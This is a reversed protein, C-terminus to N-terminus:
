HLDPSGGKLALPIGACVLYVHASKEAMIRNLYGAVDRFSRALGNEPVIGWGVENTVFILDCSVDELIALFADVEAIVRPELGHFRHYLNGLWVTLCDVVAVETNLPLESLVRGLEFPEEITQFRDGRELRHRSIRGSMEPDTEVATAVFTRRAYRVEAIHLALASKGCRAGGTILIRVRDM